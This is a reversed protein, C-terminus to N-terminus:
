RRAPAQRTLRVGRWHPLPLDKATLLVVGREDMIAQVKAHMERAQKTTITKM